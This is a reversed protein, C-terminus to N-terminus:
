LNLFIKLADNAFGIASVKKVWMICIENMFIDLFKM